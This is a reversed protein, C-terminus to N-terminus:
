ENAGGSGKTEPIRRRPLPPVPTRGYVYNWYTWSREDFIGAPPADLVAEFDRDAFYRKATLLEDWTGYTMLHALFRQPDSLAEEPQEFWVVRKAIGRLDVPYSMM